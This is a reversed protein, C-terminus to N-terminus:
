ARQAKRRTAGLGLLAGGVLLLSAPEPLRAAENVAINDLQYIAQRAGAASLATFSVSVVNSFASSVTFTQFDALAGAGDLTGDFTLTQSATGGGFLVAEVLLSYSPDPGLAFTEAADLGNLTFAGGGGQDHDRDSTTERGPHEHWQHRHQRREHM